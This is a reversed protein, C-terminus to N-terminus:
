ELSLFLTFYDVTSDRRPVVLKGLLTRGWSNDRRGRVFYKSKIDRVAERAITGISISVLFRRPLLRLIDAIPVVRCYKKLENWANIKLLWCLPDGGRM